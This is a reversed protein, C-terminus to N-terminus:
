AESKAGHRQVLCADTARKLNALLSSRPFGSLLDQELGKLVSQFSFSHQCRCSRTECSRAACFDSIARGDQESHHSASINGMIDVRSTPSSKNASREHETSRAYHVPLFALLRGEASCEAACSLATSSHLSVTVRSAYGESASHWYMVLPLRLGEPVCDIVRLSTPSNRGADM